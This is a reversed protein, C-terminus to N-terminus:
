HGGGYGGGRGGGGGGYGGGYGGGGSSRGGYGAGGSQNPCDRAFHGAQGCKYCNGGGGGGGAGGGGFGGGGGGGYGTSGGGGGYGGGGGGYGGGGGGYSGGGGGYGSGGQGGGPNPCDRAFHGEQKCKYCETSSGGGSAGGYSGAAASGGYASGSGGYGGGYGGTTGGYNNVTEVTPKSTPTYASAGYAPTASPYVGASIKAAGYEPEGMNLNKIWGLMLKSESVWDIRDVKVLTSKVRQEDNYTEEKVKLKIVHKTFTLKQVAESFRQPEDQSWMFLDKAKHQMLEEGGEQFVTIWTPGTHDMVQINLLYRCLISLDLNVEFHSLM